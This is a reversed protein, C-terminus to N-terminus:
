EQYLYYTLFIAALGCLPLMFLVLQYDSLSFFIWADVLNRLINELGYGMLMVMFSSLLWYLNTVAILMMRNAAPYSKLNLTFISVSSSAFFGILLFFVTLIAVGLKPVFLLASSVITLAYASVTLSIPAYDFRELLWGHTIVGVSFGLFAVTVVMSAVNYSLASAHSIWAIGWSETVCMLPLYLLTALLGRKIFLPDFFWSSSEGTASPLAFDQYRKAEPHMRHLFILAFVMIFGILALLAGGLRWGFGNITSRVVTAGVFALLMALAYVVSVLQNFRRYHYKVALSGICSVMISSCGLGMLVRGLYAAAPSVAFVLATVGLATFFLAVLKSLYPGVRLVWRAAPVQSPLYILYFVICIWGYGIYSFRFAQNLGHSLLVPLLRVLYDLALLPAMFLAYYIAIRVVRQDFYRTM